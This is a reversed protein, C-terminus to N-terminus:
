AHLDLREPHSYVNYHDGRVFAALTLGLRDAAEPRAPLGREAAGRRRVSLVGGHSM